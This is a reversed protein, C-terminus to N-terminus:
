KAMAADLAAEVLEGVRRGAAEANGFRADVIPDFVVPPLGCRGLHYRLLLRALIGNFSPVLPDALLRVYVQGAEILAPKVRLQPSNIRRVVETLRAVAVGDIDTTSLGASVATYWRLVGDPTLAQARRLDTEIHRLIAAHNRLRQAQRSRLLTPRASDAAAVADAVQDLDVDIGDLRFSAWTAR